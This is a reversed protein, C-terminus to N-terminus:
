LFIRWNHRIKERMEKVGFRKKSWTRHKGMTRALVLMLLTQPFFTSSSALSKRKATMRKDGIFLIASGEPEVRVLAM